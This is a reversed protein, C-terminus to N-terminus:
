FVIELHKFKNQLLSDVVSESTTRSKISGERITAVPPRRSYSTGRPLMRQSSSSAISIRRSGRRAFDSRRSRPPRESPKESKEKIGNITDVVIKDLSKHVLSNQRLGKFRSRNWGQPEDEFWSEKVKARAAVVSSYDVAGENKWRHDQSQRQHNFSSCDVAEENTWRHDQYRQRRQHM